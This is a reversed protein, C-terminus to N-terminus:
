PRSLRRLVEAHEPHRAVLAERSPMEWDAFDFGPAVTCGVLTYAGQPVAAQLVGASIVVQPREGRAVERGLVVQELGGDGLLYLTLPEGEYFHWVEDSALRHWASFTGRPLLYYIATGAPRRGRPTEVQATARYMERYYGGEPHPQLGLARVLTDSM